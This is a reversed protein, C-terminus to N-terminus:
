GTCSPSRMASTRAWASSPEGMSRVTGSRSMECGSPYRRRIGRLPRPRSPGGAGDRQEGLEWAGDGYWKRRYEERTMLGAAVEDM